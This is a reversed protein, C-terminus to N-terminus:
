VVMKLQSRDAKGDVRQQNAQEWTSRTSCGGDLCCGYKIHEELNCGYGFEKYNKLAPDLDSQTATTDIGGNKISMELNDKLKGGGFKVARSKYIHPTNTESGMISPLDYMRETKGKKNQKELADAVGWRSTRGLLPVVIRDTVLSQNPTAGPGPQGLGKARISTTAIGGGGSFLGGM